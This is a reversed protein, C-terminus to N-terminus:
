REAFYIQSSPHTRTLSSSGGCTRPRRTSTREFLAKEKLSTPLLPAGQHAYKEALYRCIACRE